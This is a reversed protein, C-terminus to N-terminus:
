LGLGLFYLISDNIFLPVPLIIVAWTYCRSILPNMLKKFRKELRMGILQIFFYSIMYGFVSNGTALYYPLSVMVEHFLGSILFSYLPAIKSNVKTVPKTLTMIWDRVWTNWRRGWFESLSKAMWPAQHMDVFPQSNFLTFLLAASRGMFELAFYLTPLAFYSKLYSNSLNPVILKKLIILSLFFLITFLIWTYIQKKLSSHNQRNYSLPTLYPSKLYFTYSDRNFCVWLALTKMLFVCAIFCSFYITFTIM